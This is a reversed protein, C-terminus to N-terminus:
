LLEDVFRRAAIRHGPETLHIDDFALSSDRLGAKQFEGLLDVVLIGNEVLTAVIEMHM